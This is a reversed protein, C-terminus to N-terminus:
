KKLATAYRYKTTVKESFTGTELIRYGQNLALLGLFRELSHALTVDTKGSEIEFDEETLNLRLIKSIAEPKFWFMSGGVFTFPEGWYALNLQDALEDILPQNGGIFHETSLLNGKPGIIGVQPIDLHNKINRVIEESGLLDDFLENRWRDGDKRHTSKKTHVKCMYKYGLDEIENFIRIFPAIDRGRNPCEYIFTHPFKTLIKERPIDLAHPTSVILDFDQALNDLHSAIDDWLDAYYLHVIVATDHEKKYGNLVESRSKLQRNRSFQFKMKKLVNATAQLYAYGFKRDPELHTGEAWENWANIFVIREEPPASKCTYEAAASLWTQYAKPTCNHFILPNNQRRATNDWSLFLTKYLPYGPVPKEMMGRAADRYDHVSGTFDKNAILLTENIQPIPPLGHPPFEVVADFGIEKPDVVGPTQVAMLYIEGIGNTLCYQRWRRATEASNPLLGARYVMIVPRDNIRLYKQNRIYVELDQIFAIDSQEDYKQAILIEQELGDWRRTWNENAWCLFFPFNLSPDSAFQDIPRELLKKGNFWYYYFCFGSIGYKKALAVQRHLVDPVRLDYFGLEDPHHPQYHGVFQPVAKSVNKWETFGRGWWADNEPIPHYQPLYFAIFKIAKQEDTLDEDSFAVYESHVGNQAESLYSTYIEQYISHNKSKQIKVQNGSFFTRRGKNIAKRILAALGQEKAVIIIKSILVNKKGPM